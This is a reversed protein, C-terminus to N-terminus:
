ASSLSRHTLRRASPPPPDVDPERHREDREHEDRPQDGPAWAVVAAAAGAGGTEVSGSWGSRGSGALVGPAVRGTVAASM